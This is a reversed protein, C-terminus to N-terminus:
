ATVELVMSDVVTRGYEDKARVKLQHTGVALDSPLNAEWVHSSLEPKVWSKKAKANRTFLEEVFPDRRSVKKMPLSKGHAIFLELESKPGGDYFNVVVRTSHCAAQEIPGTLLRGVPYESMTGADNAHVQSDLVIRMHGDARDHAPMLTTTYASGDIQLVRFGNPAGDTQIAVPIGREDFPGSWWSGSVASMVHHHHTGGTFGDAAGFYWHENTHTHGSFSISNPHSAIAEFFAANDTNAFGGDTGALTKLPIHFSYVILSDKPVNALVNRVFQLQEDGFKGIYKGFGNPKAPDTGQYFVNDLVFFTVGAYQFAHYRTGYTAKYTERSLTNDVAELNMDHNGPCNYWPLGITGIIKNYRGYHALDDFMLDGHTIGFAADINTTRAVVDDRIFGIEALSEPQPDTFLIANFRPKEEQRRLAFDISQPLPGTPAIGAFRYRDPDPTGNPAHIYSFKPLQTEPDVPTMFGAPKIVFLSQGDAVPLQWHGNSDTKVVDRGNSVLVGPLGPNGSGPKGTGTKDEFVTGRATEAPATDAFASNTILTAGLAAAGVLTQRRSIEFEMTM